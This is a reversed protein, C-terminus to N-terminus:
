LMRSVLQKTAALHTFNAERDPDYYSQGIAGIGDAEYPAVDMRASNTHLSETLITQGERTLVWNAFLRAAAPHPARDFHLLATSPVFDAEPLDLHKVNQGLGRARVANLPKPRLGRAIPHSGRVFAEAMTADWGVRTISPRQDVLLSQLVAAGSHKWVAAATMLGDGVLPDSSVIKGRWKPDLLDRVRAPLPELASGLSGDYEPFWEPAM